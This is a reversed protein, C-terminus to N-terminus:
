EEEFCKWIKKWKWQLYKTPEREEYYGCSECEEENPCAPPSNPYIGIWIRSNLCFGVKDSLPKFEEM